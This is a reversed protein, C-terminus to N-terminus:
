RSVISRYSFATKAFRTLSTEEWTAEFLAISPQLKRWTLDFGRENKFFPDFSGLHLGISGKQVTLIM